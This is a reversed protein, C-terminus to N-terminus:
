SIRTKRFVGATADEYAVTYGQTRAQKAYRWGEVHNGQMFHCRVALDLALSVRCDTMSSWYFLAGAGTRLRALPGLTEYRLFHFHCITLTRALLLVDKLLITM